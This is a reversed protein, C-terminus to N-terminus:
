PESQKVKGRAMARQEIRPYLHAVSRQYEERFVALDFFRKGSADPTLAEPMSDGQEARQTLNEHLWRLYDATQEIARQDSVVPGHGPVLVKFPIRSLLELDNLWHEIDAHPTTAAREFFVSDAAFLVGSDRDFIALDDGSHGSLEILQLERGAVQVTPEVSLPEPVVVETGKMWPGVMRYMADNFLEGQAKIGQVTGPLASIAVGAFGQNGLFHDPHFHSIFVQVIPKDTIGAIVRRMAEGYQKSPGTDIVIVGDDAVIFGTNVINGGNDFGFHENRGILVYVDTAVQQAQLRYEGPASWAPSMWLLVLLLPFIRRLNNM